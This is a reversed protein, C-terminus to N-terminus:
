ARGGADFCTGKEYYNRGGDSDYCYSYMSNDPSAFYGILSNRLSTTEIISIATALVLLIGIILTFIKYAQDSNRERKKKRRKKKQAM